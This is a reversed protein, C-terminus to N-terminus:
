EHQMRMCVKYRETFYSRNKGTGICESSTPDPISPYGLLCYDMAYYEEIIARAAPDLDVCSEHKNQRAHSNIPNRATAPTKMKVAGYLRTIGEVWQEQCLVKDVGFDHDLDILLDVMPKFHCENLDNWDNQKQFLTFEHINMDGIHTEAWATDRRTGKRDILYYFASIYRECPHRIHAATVFDAIERETSNQMLMAIPHHGGLPHFRRADNFLPSRLITTGGTKPVHVYILKNQRSILGKDTKYLKVLDKGLSLVSQKPKVLRQKMDAMKRAREDQPMTSSRTLDVTYQTNMKQLSALFLFLALVLLLSPFCGLFNWSNETMNLLAHQPYPKSNPRM